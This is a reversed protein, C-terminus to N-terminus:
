IRGRGDVQIKCRRVNWTAVAVGRKISPFKQEMKKRWRIRERKKAKGSLHPQSKRLLRRNAFLDTWKQKRRERRRTKRREDRRKKLRRECWTNINECRPGPNPHIGILRWKIWVITQRVGASVRGHLCIQGEFQKLLHAPRSNGPWERGLFPGHCLSKCRQGSRKRKPAIDSKNFREGGSDTRGDPFRLLILALKPRM